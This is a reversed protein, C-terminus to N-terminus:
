ATAKAEEAAHDYGLPQYTGFHWQNGEPDRASYERSGYDTDYPARVIEAGAAQAREAHADPDDVVVYVGGGGGRTAAFDGSASGLMVLGNGSRLEAHHVTGDDGAYLAHREFAFANMLFEIAKPADAYGLTPFVTAHSM